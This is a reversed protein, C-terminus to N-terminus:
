TRIDRGSFLMPLLDSGRDVVRISTLGAMIIRVDKGYRSEEEAIIQRCKGCPAVPQEVPVGRSIARIAISLPAVGPYAAAATSIANHEACIGSPFAANEINCGTIVIGNSLRVAAGVAFGSYPSWSSSAATSAAKILEQDDPSLEGENDYERIETTTKIIRM